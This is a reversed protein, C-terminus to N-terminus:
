YGLDPRIRNPLPRGARQARINEMLIDLSSDNYTIPDDASMHPTIFLGPTRWMRHNAPLPEPVAVDTIAGGLQGSDLLDCLADQDWLPGRGINFLKAGKPLLTLRRRDMLGHTEPTLPCALVLFESEPLVADLMDQPVIRDCAAHPDTGRRVGTVRMGFRRAHEAIAGGLSGLGIVTVNRGALTRAFRPKWIGERQQDAFHPMHNALMLLAMIGFEGAKAAHTGRNNLLSTQPPLWTLPLLRDIGASTCFVMRLKPALNTLDQSVLHEHLIKTWTVLIEADALAPLLAEPDNSFRAELDQVDPHRQCAAQWQEPTIPFLTEGPPNQIHILM